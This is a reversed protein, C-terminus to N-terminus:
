FSRRINGTFRNERAGDIKRIGHSYDLSAQMMTFNAVASTNWVLSYDGPDTVFSYGISGGLTLQKLPFYKLGLLIKKNFTRNSNSTGDTYELSESVEFLKRSIGLRSFYSYNLRQEIDTSNTVIGKSSSWSYSANVVSDFNRSHIYHLSANNSFSDVDVNDIYERSGRSYKANETIKWTDTNFTGGAIIETAPSVGSSNSKYIDENITFFTNLRAEPQWSVTISSLSRYSKSGASAGELNRPNSYLNLTTVSNSVGSSFSSSTGNTFSNSQSASIRVNKALSYSWNINIQQDLFDSTANTSTDGSSTSKIKYSAALSTTNSYKSTSTTEISGSLTLFDSTNSKSTEVDFGQSLTFAARKFADVRYGSLINSFTADSGSEALDRNGRYSARANWSIDQSVIGAIYLPVSSQYSITNNEAKVRSFSSYTSANWYKREGIVFLNLDINDVANAQRNSQHKSFQIDTSVKIWNAFDIWRRTMYQDITGLQVQNEYFNFSPNIYDHYLTHRYHFWNDKKNLSVFALRTLRDDVPSLSRLDRNITDKYDLLIMPFHRLIENYGNTMGNKVGAVLTVGSEIHLGDNIGVAEVRPGFVSSFGGKSTGSSYAISNQTLDHSYANLRFPVEKPDLTINGEYLLHGRTENFSEAGSSTTNFKTDLATWNYGLLVNYHGVRSNYITGSSDYMLSYNQVFSKTSSHERRVPQSNGDYQDNSGEYSSYTLSAEGSLGAVCEAEFACFCFLAVLCYIIINYLQRTNSAGFM